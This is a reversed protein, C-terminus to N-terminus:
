NEEQIVFPLLKDNVLRYNEKLHEINGIKTRKRKRGYTSVLSFEYTEEDIIKEIFRYLKIGDKHVYLQNPQLDFENRKKWLKKLVNLM